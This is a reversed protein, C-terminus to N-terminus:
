AEKSTHSEKLITDTKMVAKSSDFGEQKDKPEEKEM